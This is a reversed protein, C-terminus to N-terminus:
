KSSVKGLIKRIKLKLAVRHKYAYWCIVAATVILSGWAWAQGAKLAAYFFLFPRFIMWSTRVGAAKGALKTATSTITESPITDILSDTLSPEDAAPPNQAPAKESSAVSAGAIVVPTTTSPHTIVVPTQTSHPSPLDAPAPRLLDRLEAPGILKALEFHMGDPRKGFHGGWYFGFRNAIEVLEVVSGEAGRPAPRKGLPNWPVNIDFATGFAHNSLVTRSGRIFRPVFSGAWTKVLRMLGAQEWAEFLALLQNVGYRHFYIGGDLPAYAVQRLQPVTVKVINKAQWDGLILIGEPNGKTPQSRYEFKGFIRQRDATSTLAPFSPKPPYPSKNDM